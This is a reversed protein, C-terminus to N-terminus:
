RYAPACWPGRRRPLIPAPAPFSRRAACPAYIDARLRTTPAFFSRPMKGYALIFLFRTGGDAPQPCPWSTSLTLLSGSHHPLRCAQSAFKCALSSVQVCTVASQMHLQRLFCLNGGPTGEKGSLKQTQLSQWRGSGRGCTAPPPKRKDFFANRVLQRVPLM